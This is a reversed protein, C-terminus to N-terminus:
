RAVRWVGRVGDGTTDGPETDGIWFYLPAGNKAWQQTGDRRDIRTLGPIDENGAYYPPWNEACSYYCTSVGPRDEDLTYLTMGNTATFVEKTVAASTTTPSYYSSSGYAYAQDCGAVVIGFILAACLKM